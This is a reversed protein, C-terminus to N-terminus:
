LPVSSWQCNNRTPRGCRALRRSSKGPSRLSMTDANGSMDSMLSPTTYSSVDSLISPDFGAKQMDGDLQGSMARVLPIQDGFVKLTRALFLFDEEKERRVHPETGAAAQLDDLFVTSAMYAAFSLVPNRIARGLGNGAAHFMKLTDQAAKRLRTHSDATLRPPLSQRATSGIVLRHLQMNAMNTCAHVLISDLGISPQELPMNEHMFTHLIDLSKTIDNHRQWYAQDQAQNLVGGQPFHHLTHDLSHLLENAALIRLSLSSLKTSRGKQVEYLGDALSCASKPQVGTNFAEETSPLNTQILREDVLSPWGTTATLFRDALFVIWWTRRREEAEMFNRPQPLSSLLIDPNQSDLRHLNLIQAIRLARCLSTSARTFIAHVHCEYASILLWSQVHGVTAFTQGSPKLEDAEAYVRARQYFAEALHRHAPSTAAASALVIYQLCMPPSMHPPLRLSMTYNAQHLMPAGASVNQFFITTLEDILDWSPLSEFLNTDILQQEPTLARPSISQNGEPSSMLQELSLDQYSTQPPGGLTGLESWDILNVDTDLSPVTQPQEEPITNVPQRTATESSSSLTAAKLLKELQGIREELERVSKRQGVAHHRTTPYSCPVSQGVCRGCAPRVRDCRLKRSRCRSCSLEAVPAVFVNSNSSSQRSSDGAAQGSSTGDEGM